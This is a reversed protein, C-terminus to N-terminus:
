AAMASSRTSCATAARMPAAGRIPPRVSWAEGRDGAPAARVAGAAARNAQARKWGPSDYSRASAGGGPWQRPLRCLRRLLRRWWRRSMRRRSNRQRLPVAAAQWRGYVQRNAAFSIRQARAGPHPRCLGAPAGGGAGEGTRTWPASAPSCAKRGAPCSSPPVGAGQRLAPDHDQRPRRSAPRPGDGALRAGSLGALTEFAGM